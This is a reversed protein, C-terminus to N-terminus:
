EKVRELVLRYKAKTTEINEEGVWLKFFEKKNLKAFIVGPIEWLGCVERSANEDYNTDIFPVGEGLVIRDKLM